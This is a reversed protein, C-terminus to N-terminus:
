DPKRRRVKSYHRAAKARNGCSSMDCWRRTGTKSTDVFLWLCRDNACRRIRRQAANLLLEGASWLVPALLNPGTIDGTIEAGDIRWGYGGDRQSLRRRSPAAALARNLRALDHHPAPEGAAIASFIGYIAERVAIADAFATQARATGRQAWARAGAVIPGPLEATQELWGLLDDIGHLTESATESGRWFLTNAFDLCLAERVGLVV